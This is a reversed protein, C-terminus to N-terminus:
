FHVQCIYRGFLSVMMMVMLFFRKEGGRFCLWVRLKTFYPGPSSKAWYFNWHWTCKSIVSNARLKRSSYGIKEITCSDRNIRWYRSQLCLLENSFYQLVKAMISIIDTQECKNMFSRSKQIMRTVMTSKGDENSLNIPLNMTPEFDSVLKRWFFIYLPFRDQRNIFWCSILKSFWQQM